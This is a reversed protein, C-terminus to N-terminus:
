SELEVKLNLMLKWKNNRKTNKLSKARVLPAYAKARERVQEVIAESLDPHETLDLLYGLRQVWVVPCLKAAEVLKQPEISEALESVVGAVIDLGGCQDAYGMLELATAAPTAVSMSGRPTNMGVTPTSALDKRAIFDVEVKGCLISRRNKALMVQFRQPRQHAAGHLEAASLLAVYYYLKLHDMLQPIFQEPPLCGLRMYEPSVIVHFGRYPSAIEGQRELRRLSGRVAPMSTGLAVQIEDTTFHYRGRSALGLVYEKASPM